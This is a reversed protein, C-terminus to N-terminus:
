HKAAETKVQMARPIFVPTNQLTSSYRFVEKIGSLMEVEVQASYKQRESQELTIETVQIDTRETHQNSGAGDRAKIKEHSGSQHLPKPKSTETKSRMLM